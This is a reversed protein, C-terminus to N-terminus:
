LVTTGRPLVYMTVMMFVGEFAHWRENINGGSKGAMSAIDDGDIVGQKRGAKSGLTVVYRLTKFNPSEWSWLSIM